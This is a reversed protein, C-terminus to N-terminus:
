KKERGGFVIERIRGMVEVTGSRFGSLLLGEGIFSISERRLRLVIEDESYKLIKEAECLYVSKKGDRSFCRVEIISSASLMSSEKIEDRRKEGKDSMKGYIKKLFFPM